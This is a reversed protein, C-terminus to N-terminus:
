GEADAIRKRPTFKEVFVSALRQTSDWTGITALLPIGLKRLAKSLTNADISYDGQLSIIDPYLVVMVPVLSLYVPLVKDGWEGLLAQTSSAEPWGAVLLALGALTQPPVKRLETQESGTLREMALPFAVLLSRAIRTIRLQAADLEQKEM